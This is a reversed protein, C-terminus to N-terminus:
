KNLFDNFSSIVEGLSRQPKKPESCEDPLINVIRNVGMLGFTVTFCVLPITLLVLFIMMLM